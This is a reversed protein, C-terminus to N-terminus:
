LVVEPEGELPKEPATGMKKMGDQRELVMTGDGRILVRMGKELAIEAARRLSAKTFPVPRSM